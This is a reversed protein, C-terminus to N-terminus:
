NLKRKFIFTYTAPIEYENVIWSTNMQVLEWRQKGENNLYEAIRYSPLKHPMQLSTKYEWM